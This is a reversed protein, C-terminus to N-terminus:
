FRVPASLLVQYDPADRTLGIGVTLDLLLNSGLVTDAGIQLVSSVRDSGPLATGDVSTKGTFEQNLSFSLSTEPSVALITGIELGFTDGPHVRGVPEHAALSATYSLTGFFVLPDRSKAATLRGKVAHTGTGAALSPTETRFPDRGTPFRWSLGALLDPWWNGERLIQRSLEVEVDGIGPASHDTSSGDGLAVAERTWAYPVRVELQSEWPLGLKLSLAAKISDNQLRQNIVTSVGEPTPAIVLGETLTHQYAVSPSVEFGWEPLLLAGRQV